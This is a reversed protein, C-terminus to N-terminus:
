QPDDTFFIEESGGNLCDDYGDYYGDDYGVSYGEAYSDEPAPWEWKLADQGDKYGEEYGDYYGDSYGRSSGGCSTLSLMITLTTIALIAKQNNM